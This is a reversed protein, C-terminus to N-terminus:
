KSFIESLEQAPVVELQAYTCDSAPKDSRFRRFQATHRFRGSQMHDYAVELVLEPRLPEWSLDKDQSWRSKGGPMRQDGGEASEHEAWSRWPHHELAHKRYPALFEALERRKAMTFSACVGVHQLAGQEDYLGLLLSGISDKNGSKHWRFGAVVCDCERDHKVKFMVRKNAEYSGAENKAMVGDLGAGEFRQFWDAAQARDTTSPTIFLPPKAKRLVAELRARRERFPESQLDSAGECLIDFFVISAPLDNSLLKVRSAAPHVRLQLADFDLENGRAVVIEGDLVCQRPLGALLPPILEPFYRNLSKRDRSQLLLEDGDRFVLTRFGDWKPEFIWADGAPLASVRKALMPLVPPAVALQM